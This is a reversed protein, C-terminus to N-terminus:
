HHQKIFELRDPKGSEGKFHVFGCRIGDWGHEENLKCSHRFLGGLIHGQNDIHQANAVYRRSEPSWIMAYALLALNDKSAKPCHRKFFEARELWATKGVKNV